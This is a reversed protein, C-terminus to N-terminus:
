IDEANCTVGPHVKAALTRAPASTRCGRALKDPPPPVHVFAWLAKRQAYCYTRSFHLHSTQREARLSTPGWPCARPSYPVVRAPVWRAPTAGGEAGSRPRRPTRRPRSAAGAVTTLPCTHDCSPASAVDHVYICAPFAKRQRQAAQWRGEGGVGGGRSCISTPSPLHAAMQSSCPPIADELLAGANSSSSAFAM